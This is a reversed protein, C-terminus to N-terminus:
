PKKMKKAWDDMEDRLAFPKENPLRHIPMRYSKAYRKITSLECGVYYAIDKWGYLWGPKM